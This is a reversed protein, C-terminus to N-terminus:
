RTSWSRYPEHEGEGYFVSLAGFTIAITALMAAVAILGTLRHLPRAWLTILGCLLAAAGPLVPILWVYKLWEIEPM